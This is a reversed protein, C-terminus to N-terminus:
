EGGVPLRPDQDNLWQYVDGWFGASNAADFICSELGDVGIEVGTCRGALVELVEQSTKEPAILFYTPVNEKTGLQEHWDAPAQHTFHTVM